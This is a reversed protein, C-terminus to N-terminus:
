VCYYVKVSHSIYGDTTGLYQKGSSCYHMNIVPKRSGTLLLQMV